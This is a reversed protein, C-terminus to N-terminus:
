PASGARVLGVNSLSKSFITYHVLEIGSPFLEDSAKGTLFEKASQHVFYVTEERVTLFSGCLSIVEKLAETDTSYDVLTESFSALEKLATPRYAAAMFGLIEWCLEDDESERIEQM